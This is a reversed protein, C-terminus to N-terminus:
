ETKVEGDISFRSESKRSSFAEVGKEYTNAVKKHTEAGMDYEEQTLGLIFSLIDSFIFLKKRESEKYLKDTTECVIAQTQPGLQYIPSDLGRGTGEGTQMSQEQVENAMTEDKTHVSARGIEASEEQQYKLSEIFRKELETFMTNRTFMEKAAPFTREFGCREKNIRVVYNNLKWIFGELNDPMPDDQEEIYPGALEGKGLGGSKIKALEREKLLEKTWMTTPPRKRGVRFDKCVTGDVYMM